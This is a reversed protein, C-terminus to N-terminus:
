FCFFLPFHQLLEAPESLNREMAAAQTSSIGQTLYLFSSNHPFFTENGSSTCLTKSAHWAALSSASPAAQFLPNVQACPGSPLIAPM